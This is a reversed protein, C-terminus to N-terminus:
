WLAIVSEVVNYLINVVLLNRALGFLYPEMPKALGNTVYVPPGLWWCPNVSPALNIAQVCCTWAWGERYTKVVAGKLPVRAFARIM